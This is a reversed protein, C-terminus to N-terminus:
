FTRSWVVNSSDSPSRLAASRFSELVLPSPTKLTSTPPSVPSLSGLHRRDQAAALVEYLLEAEDLKGQYWHLDGLEHMAELTQLHEGGLLERHVALASELLPRAQEYQGRNTYVQGLSYMLRAEVLPEHELESQVRDAARKLIDDVTYQSFDPDNPDAVEFLGM